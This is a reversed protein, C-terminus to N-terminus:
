KTEGLLLSSWNLDEAIEGLKWTIWGLGTSKSGGLADILKLGAVLLPKAQPPLEPIIQIEGKFILGANVPSTELFFLRKEEATRRARNITVGSRLVEGLDQEECILDSFIVHSPLAPNGFIRCILCHYRPVIPDQVPSEPEQNSDELDRIIYDERKFKNEETEVLKARQPCMTQAVPSYCVPWNLGRALRECQHRLRGKIQSAPIILRGSGDRVVPKDALSGSSGGSGICLATDVTATLTLTEARNTTLSDLSIM